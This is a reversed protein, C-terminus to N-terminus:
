VCYRRKASIPTYCKNQETNMEKGTAKVYLRFYHNGIQKVGIKM